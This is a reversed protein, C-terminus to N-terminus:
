SPVLAVTVGRPRWSPIPGTSPTTVTCTNFTGNTSDNTVNITCIYINENSIDAVYAYQTGNVTGFSIGRPSWSAVTPNAQSCVNFSGNINLTCKYVIGGNDAVYAYQINNVTAFTLANPTWSGAPSSLPTSQCTNSFTGDSNISCQYINQNIGSAVYGYQVGNVIGIAVAFPSWAPAADPTPNCGTFHGTSTDITCHYVNGGVNDSVYAYEVGTITALTVGTPSSSFLISENASPCPDSSFAGSSPTVSCQAITSNGNDAVYGYQISNFTAFSTAFPSWTQSGPPTIDCASLTGNVSPSASVNLSCYYVADPSSSSVYLIPPSCIVSVNSVNANSMIGTGNNVACGLNAPQNKVTVAYSTGYALGSSFSFNTANAPIPLDDGGNLQLILGSSTLGSLSGDILYPTGTQAIAISAPIVANVSFLCYGSKYPKCNPLEFGPTNIKIGANPYTHNPITTQINLNSASVTQNQCSIPGQGNLCLTISINAPTGTAIVDFLRGSAITPASLAM